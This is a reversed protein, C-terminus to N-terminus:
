ADFEGPRPPELDPHGIATDSLATHAAELVDHRSMARYADLTVPRGFMREIVRRIGAITMRAPRVRAWAILRDVESVYEPASIRDELFAQKAEDSLRRLRGTKAGRSETNDVAAPGDAHYRLAERQQVVLAGACQRYETMSALWRATAFRGSVGKADRAAHCLMPPGDRVGEKLGDHGQWIADYAGPPTYATKTNANCIRFPCTSCPQDRTPGIPVGNVESLRQIGPEDGLGSSTV